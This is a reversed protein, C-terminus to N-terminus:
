SLVSQWFREAIRLRPGEHLPVSDKRCKSCANALLEDNGKLALCRVVSLKATPFLAM